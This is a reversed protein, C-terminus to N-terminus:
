IIGQQRGYRLVSYIETIVVIFVLFISGQPIVGRLLGAARGYAVLLAGCKHSSRSNNQIKCFRHSTQVKICIGQYAHFCLIPTFKFFILLQWPPSLFKLFLINIFDFTITYKVKRYPITKRCFAHTKLLGFLDVKLKSQWKDSNRSFFAGHTVSM